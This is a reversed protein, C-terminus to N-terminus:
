VGTPLALIVLTASGGLKHCGGASVARDHVHAACSIASCHWLGRCRM